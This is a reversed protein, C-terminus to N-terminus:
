KTQTTRMKWIITDGSIVLAPTLVGGHLDRIVGLCWALSQVERGPQRRPMMELPLDRLGRFVGFLDVDRCCMLM